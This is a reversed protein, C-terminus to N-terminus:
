YITLKLSDYGFNQEALNSNSIHIYSIRFRNKFTYGVDFKINLRIAKPTPFPKNFAIFGVNFVEKISVPLWHVSLHDSSYFTLGTNKYDIGVSTIRTETGWFSFSNPSVTLNQSAALSPTLLIILFILRMSIANTVRM